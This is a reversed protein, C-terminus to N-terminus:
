RPLKTQLEPEPETTTRKRRDTCHAKYNAAAGSHKSEIHKNLNFKSRYNVSLVKRCTQCEYMWSINKEPDNNAPRKLIFYKSPVIFTPKFKFTDPAVYVTNTTETSTSATGSGDNDAM